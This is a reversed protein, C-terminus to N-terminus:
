SLTIFGLGTSVLVFSVLVAIAVLACTLLIQGNKIGIVKSENNEEATKISQLYGKFMRDNFEKEPLARVEDVLDRNYKGNDFFHKSGIPYEYNKISYAQIFRSIGIV